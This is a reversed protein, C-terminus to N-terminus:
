IERYAERTLLGAERTRKEWLRAVAFALLPLAGRQDKLESLMEEVLADDEFRYGCKFAPQTLARRLAPVTPPGLPTMESFIPALPPRAHCHLLFDDRMSLVVHVDAELALRGLLESFQAQVEPPNLTFLEEFQDVILLAQEHRKRWQGILGVVVDPDDFRPLLRVAVTDGSIEPALGQALAMMPSSGPTCVVSRWGVPLAPILGARLFSSKGAGSPGIIALLHPRRLRGWMQEVEVERGFFFEAEAETFAALGPYPRRGDAGGIRLTIEELARALAQASPHRQGPDKAIARLLVPRWPADPLRPPEERAGAWLSERTTQGISGGVSIMEALVVGTAFIDTRADLNEGRLQEPAMYPRTGVISHDRDDTVPKALGFDMLVVRGTRTLMVNGPKIDRHVLGAGHIADLGVLLQSAITTAERLDLPGRERLVGSLTRGDVYEMSVFEQGGAEVLDFIRCVHPSAVQRAARVERRLVEFSREDRLRERRLSKLAVEVRLKLDLALWVEGMGGEGLFTRIEYRGGLIRGPGLGPRVTEPDDSARAAPSDGNLLDPATESRLAIMAELVRLQRLHPRLGAHAAGEREWDVPTGDGVAGALRLLSEEDHTSL